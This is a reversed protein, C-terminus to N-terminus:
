TTSTASARPWSPPSRASCPRCGTRRRARGGGGGRAPRADGRGDAAAAPARGPHQGARLRAARRVPRYGGGGDGIWTQTVATRRGLDRVHQEAHRVLATGVGRRGFRPPVWAWLHALHLNDTTSGVVWAQGVMQQRGEFAPSPTPLVVGGPPRRLYAVSDARSFVRADPVEARAAEVYLDQLVDMEHDDWPDVPRITLRMVAVRGASPTAARARIGTRSLSRFTRTLHVHRCATTWLRRALDSCPTPPAHRAERGSM